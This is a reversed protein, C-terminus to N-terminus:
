SNCSALGLARLLSGAFNADEPCSPTPAPQPSPPSASDGGRTLEATGATSASEQGASPSAAPNPANAPAATSPGTSAAAVPGAPDGTPPGVGGPAASAGVPDLVSTTGAAVLRPNNGSAAPPRRPAAAAAASATTVGDQADRADQGSPGVIGPSTTAAGAPGDGSTGPRVVTTEHQGGGSLVASVVLLVIAVFGGLGAGVAVERPRPTDDDSGSAGILRRSEGVPVGSDSTM